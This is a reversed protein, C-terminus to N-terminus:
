NATYFTENAVPPDGRLLRGHLAQAQTSPATGLEERLRTRLNEYVRLAEAVNGLRELARMLLCYGTERFPARQTLERALQAATPLEAGGAALCIAVNCEIARECVDAMEQRLEDIWPTEEGRMFERRTIAGAIVAGPYADWWRCASALSEAEHVAHRAAQVDVFADRGLDLRIESRGALWGPGLLRRLKSILASLAMDPASPLDRQWLAQVLEDRTATRHPRAALFAFLLRGQRGPMRDELREGAIRVVFHGCLQIRTSTAQESPQGPSM